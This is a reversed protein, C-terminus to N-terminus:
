WKRRGTSGGGFMMLGAGVAVAWGWWPISALDFGKAPATSTQGSQVAQVTQVPQVAQAQTMKVLNSAINAQEAVAQKAIAQEVNAPTLYGSAKDWFTRASVPTELSVGPFAITLNPLANAGAAQALYVNWLPLPGMTSDGSGTFRSDTKALELLKSYTDAAGLGYLRGDYGRLGYM